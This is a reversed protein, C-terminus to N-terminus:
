TCNYMHQPVEICLQQDNRVCLEVTRYLLFCASACIMNMYLKYMHTLMSM